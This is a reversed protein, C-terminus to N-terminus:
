ARRLAGWIRGAILGILGGAGLLGWTGLYYSWEAISLRVADSGKSTAVGESVKLSVDCVQAGSIVRGEGASCGQAMVKGIDNFRALQVWTSGDPLNVLAEWKAAQANIMERGVFYGSGLSVLVLLACGGAIQAMRFSQRRDAEKQAMIDVNTALQDLSVKLAEDVKAALDAPLSALADDIEARLDGAVAKKILDPLDDFLRAYLGANRSFLVFLIALPDDARVNAKSMMDWTSLRQEENLEFADALKRFQQAADLDVRM